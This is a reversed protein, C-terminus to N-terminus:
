IGFIIKRIPEINMICFGLVAMLVIKPYRAAFRFVELEKLEDELEDARNHVRKFSEKLESDMNILRENLVSIHRLSSTLEKMEISLDKLSNTLAQFEFDHRLVKEKLEIDTM